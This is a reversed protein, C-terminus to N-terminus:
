RGPDSWLCEETSLLMSAIIARSALGIITVLHEPIAPDYVVARRTAFPFRHPRRFRLQRCVQTERWRLEGLPARAGSKRSRNRHTALHLYEHQPVLKRVAATTAQGERLTTLKGQPMAKRFTDEIASHRPLPPVRRDAAVARSRTTRAAPEVGANEIAGHETLPKANKAAASVAGLAVGRNAERVVRSKIPADSRLYDVM